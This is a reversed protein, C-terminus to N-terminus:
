GSIGKPCLLDLIEWLAFCGYYGQLGQELFKMEPLFNPLQHLFPWVLSLGILTKTICSFQDVEESEQQLNEKECM